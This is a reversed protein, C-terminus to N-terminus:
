LADMVINEFSIASRTLMDLWNFIHQFLFLNNCCKIYEKIFFNLVYKKCSRNQMKVGIEHVETGM